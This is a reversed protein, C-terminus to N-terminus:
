QFIKKNLLTKGEYFLNFIIEFQKFTHKSIEVYKQQNVM